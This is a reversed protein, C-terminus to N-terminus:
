ALCPMCLRMHMSARASRQPQLGSWCRTCHTLVNIATCAFISSPREVFTCSQSCGAVVASPAHRGEWGCAGTLLSGPIQKGFTGATQSYPGERFERVKNVTKDLQQSPTSVCKADHIAPDSALDHIAQAVVSDQKQPDKVQMANYLHGAM